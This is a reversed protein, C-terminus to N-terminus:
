FARDCFGDPWDTIGAAAAFAIV